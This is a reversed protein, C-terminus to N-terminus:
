PPRTCSIRKEPTLGPVIRELFLPDLQNSFSPRSFAWLQLAILDFKLHNAQKEIKYLVSSEWGLTKVKEGQKGTEESIRYWKKRDFGMTGRSV